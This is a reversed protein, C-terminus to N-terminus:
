FCALPSRVSFHFGSVFRQTQYIILPFREDRAAKDRSSLGAVQYAPISSPLGVRMFFRAFAQSFHELFPSRLRWRLGSEVARAALYAVPLSSIHGFDVVLAELNNEPNNPSALLHM